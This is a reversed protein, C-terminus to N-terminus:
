SHWQFYIKMVEAKQGNQYSKILSAALVHTYSMNVWVGSLVSWEKFVWAAWFSGFTTFFKTQDRELASQYSFPTFDLKWCYSRTLVLDMMYILPPIGKERIGWGICVQLQPYTLPLFFSTWAKNHCYHRLSYDESHNPTLHHHHHKSHKYCWWYIWITNFMVGHITAKLEWYVHAAQAYKLSLLKFFDVTFLDKFSLGCTLRVALSNFM